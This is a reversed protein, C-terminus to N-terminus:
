LTAPVPIGRKAIVEGQIRTRSGPAGLGACAWLLRVRNKM